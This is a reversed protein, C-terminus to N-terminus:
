LFHDVVFWLLYMMFLHFTYCFLYVYYLLHSHHTYFGQMCLRPFLPEIYLNQPACGGLCEALLPAMKDPKNLQM